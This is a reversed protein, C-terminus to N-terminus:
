QSENKFRLQLIKECEKTDDRYRICEGYSNIIQTNIKSYDSYTMYIDLLTFEIMLMCAFIAVGLLTLPFGKLLDKM